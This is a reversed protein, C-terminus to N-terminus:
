GDVSRPLTACAGRVSAFFRTHTYASLQVRADLSLGQSPSESTDRVCTVAHMCGSVIAWRRVPVTTCQAFIDM